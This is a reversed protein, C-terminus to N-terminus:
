ADVVLLQDFTLTDSRYKGGGPKVAAVAHLNWAGVRDTDITQVHVKNM